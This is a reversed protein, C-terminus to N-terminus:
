WLSKDGNKNQGDENKKEILDLYLNLKIFKMVVNHKETSIRKISLQFM